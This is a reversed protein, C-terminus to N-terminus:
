WRGRARGLYANNWALIHKIEWGTVPGMLKGSLGLIRAAAFQFREITELLTLTGARLSLDGYLQRSYLNPGM